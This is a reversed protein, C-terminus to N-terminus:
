PKRARVYKEFRVLGEELRARPCAINWRQYGEGEPGYMTGANLWIGAERVLDEELAESSIGLVSCDMWVLYTGELKTLPFEPLREECFHKMFEYNGGLYDLLQGLWEEGENYAAVTAIVGFPNVDCVENVNIARDVKARVQPDSVIIDAIQLGAINFAKSPSVCTM